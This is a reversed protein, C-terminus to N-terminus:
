RRERGLLDSDLRAALHEERQVVTASTVEVRASLASLTDITARSRELLAREEKLATQEATLQAQLEQYEAAVRARVRAEADRVDRAAADRALVIESAASDKAAELVRNADRLQAQM